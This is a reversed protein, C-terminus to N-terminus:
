CIFLRMIEIEKGEIVKPEIECHSVLKVHGDMGTPTSWSFLWWGISRVADRQAAFWERRIEEFQVLSSYQYYNDRSKATRQQMIRALERKWKGEQTLRIATRLITNLDKQLVYVLSKINWHSICQFVANWYELILGWLLDWPSTRLIVTLIVPIQDQNDILTPWNPHYDIQIM